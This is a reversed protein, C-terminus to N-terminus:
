VGSLLWSLVLSLLSSAFEVVVDVLLSLLSLLLLMVSVIALDESLDVAAAAAFFDVFFSCPVLGDVKVGWWSFLRVGGSCGRAVGDDHRASGGDVGESLFQLVLNVDDEVLTTHGGIIGMGVDGQYRPPHRQADLPLGGLFEVGLKLGSGQFDNPVGGVDHPVGVGYLEHPVISDGGHFPAVPSGGLDDM